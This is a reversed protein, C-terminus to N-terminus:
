FYMRFMPHAHFVVLARFSPWGHISPQMCSQFKRPSTVKFGCHTSEIGLENYPSMVNDNSVTPSGFTSLKLNGVVYHSNRDSLVIATQNHMNHM